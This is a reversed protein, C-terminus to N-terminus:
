GGEYVWFIYRKYCHHRSLQISTKMIQLPPCNSITTYGFLHRTTADVITLDSAINQCSFKNFFSLEIHFRTLPYTKQPYMPIVLWDPDRTLLVPAVLTPYKPSIIQSDQTYGLNPFISFINIPPMTLSTTFYNLM